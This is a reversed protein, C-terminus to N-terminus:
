NAARGIAQHLRDLSSQIESPLNAAITVLTKFREIDDAYQERRKQYRRRTKTCVLTQPSGKRETQHTMDLQHSEIMQHLHQRRDMRIRFRHIQQAPDEAFTQLERCDACQCGLKVPEAWDTPDPPLFENRALLFEVTHRWLRLFTADASADKKQRHLSSHAPVLVRDPVYIEPCAVLSTAAAECLQAAKLQWLINFLTAVFTADVPKAPTRQWWNFHTSGEELSNIKSLMKVIAEAIERDMALLDPTSKLNESTVLRRLLDVCEGHLLPMSKEMLACFIEVAKSPELLERCAALQENESGDYQPIIVKEIFGPILKSDGLSILLELMESRKRTQREADVPLAHSQADTAWANIIVEVLSALQPWSESQRSGKSDFSAEEIQKRLYPLTAPAGAQLLVEICRREEWIVM